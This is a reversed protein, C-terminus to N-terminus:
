GLRHGLEVLLPAITANPAPESADPRAERTRGNAVVHCTGVPTGRRSFLDSHRGGVRCMVGSVLSLDLGEVSDDNSEGAIGAVAHLQGTVAEGSLGGDMAIVDGGQRVERGLNTSGLAGDGADRAELHMEGIVVDGGWAVLGVDQHGHVRSGQGGVEAIKAAAAEDDKIGGLEGRLVQLLDSVGLIRTVVAGQLGVLDDLQVEGTQGHGGDLGEAQAALVGFSGLVHEGQPQQGPQVPTREAGGLLEQGALEGGLRLNAIGVDGGELGSM